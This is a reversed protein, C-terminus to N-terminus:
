IQEDESAVSFKHTGSKTKDHINQPISNVCLVNANYKSLVFAHTHVDAPLLVAQM